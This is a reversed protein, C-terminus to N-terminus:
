HVQLYTVLGIADIMDAKLEDKKEVVLSEKKDVVLITVTNVKIDSPVEFNKM